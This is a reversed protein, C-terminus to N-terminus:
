RTGLWLIWFFVICGFTFPLWLSRILFLAVVGVFQPARLVLIGFTRLIDVM